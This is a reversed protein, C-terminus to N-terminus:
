KNVKIDKPHAKHGVGYQALFKHLSSVDKESPVGGQASRFKLAEKHLEACKAIFGQEYFTM